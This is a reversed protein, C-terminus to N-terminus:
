LNKIGEFHILNEFDGEIGLDYNQKRLAIEIQSAQNQIDHWMEEGCWTYIIYPKEVGILQKSSQNGREKENWEIWFEFLQTEHFVEHDQFCPPHFSNGICNAQPSYLYAFYM